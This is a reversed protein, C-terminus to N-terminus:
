GRRKSTLVADQCRHYARFFQRFDEERDAPWTGVRRELVIEQVLADGDREFTCRFAAFDAEEAAGPPPADFRFGPPPEVRTRYHSIQPALSQFSSERGKKDFATAYSLGVGKMPVILGDATLTAYSPVRWAARITVPAGPRHVATYDVSTVEAGDFDDTVWEDVMERFAKASKRAYNGRRTSALSGHNVYSREAELSGDEAVRLETLQEYVRTPEMAAGDLPEFRVEPRPKAPDGNSALVLAQTGALTWSVAGAPCHGCWPALWLPEALGDQAPVRVLASSFAGWHPFDVDLTGDDRPRVLGIETKLGLQRLIEDLLLVKEYQDAARDRLLTGLPRPDLSHEGLYPIDRVLEYARAIRASPPEARLSALAPPLTFGRAAERDSVLVEFFSESFRPGVSDNWTVHYNFIRRYVFQTLVMAIWPERDRRPPDWTESVTAPVDRQEWVIHTYAGDESVQFPMDTGYAKARWRGWEHMVFRLRTHRSPLAQRVYMTSTTRITRDRKLAWRYEVVTGVQVRPLSFVRVRSDGSRESEDEYVREPSLPLVAGDPAISRAEMWLVEEKPDHRIRVDCFRRGSENLVVLAAHHATIVYGPKSWGLHQIIDQEYTLFVADAAPYDAQTPRDVAAADLWSAGQWAPGCGTALVAFLGMAALPSTSGARPPLADM